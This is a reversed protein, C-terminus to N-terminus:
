QSQERLVDSYVQFTGSSGQITDHTLIKGPRDWWNGTAQQNYAGSIRSPEPGDDKAKGDNTKLSDSYVQFGNSTQITNHTQVQAARDWWNGSAQQNYAGAVRPPNPGDIKPKGDSTKLSDSYVQFGNSTKITNHTQVPAARDWWNGTAQQNYAGAVRPPNPGDIKPNYQNKMADTYTSFTGSSTKISSHTGYMGAPEWWKGGAVQNHSGPYRGEIADNLPRAKGYPTPISERAPPAEEVVVAEPAPPAGTQVAVKPDVPASFADANQVLGLAILLITSQVKM